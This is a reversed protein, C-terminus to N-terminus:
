CALRFSSVQAEQRLLAAFLANFDLTIGDKARPIDNMSDMSLIYVQPVANTHGCYKEDIRHEHGCTQCNYNIMIMNRKITYWITKAQKNM